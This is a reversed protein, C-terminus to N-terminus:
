LEYLSAGRREFGRERALADLHITTWDALLLDSDGDQAVTKVYGKCAQCTDLRLAAEGEVELLDLTAPEDNGCYPCGIRRFKWRTRCCGCALRRERGAEHTALQAMVPLAGCTPCHGHPWAADDRWAAFASVVPALVHALATWGVYRLLGPAAPADAAGGRLVWEVADRRAAPAARFRDRLERVGSAVADPLSAAALREVVEGLVAAGPRAVEVKVAESRLLPIGAAYEPRYPDLAPPVAAPGGAAAATAADDVRAQFAAIGTLFPHARLWDQRSTMM